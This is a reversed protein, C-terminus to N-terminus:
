RLVPDGAFFRRPVESAVPEAAFRRSGGCGWVGTGGVATAPPGVGVVGDGAPPGVPGGAWAGAGASSQALIGGPGILLFGRKKKRKEM